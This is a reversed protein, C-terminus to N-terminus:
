ILVGPRPNRKPPPPLFPELEEPIMYLMAALTIAMAAEDHFPDGETMLGEPYAVIPRNQAKREAVYEKIDDALYGWVEGTENNWFLTGRDDPGYGAPEIKLEYIM